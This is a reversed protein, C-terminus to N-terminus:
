RLQLGGGTKELVECLLTVAALEKPWRDRDLRQRLYSSQVKETSDAMEGPPRLARRVVLVAVAGLGTAGAALRRSPSQSLFRRPRYTASLPAGPIFYM